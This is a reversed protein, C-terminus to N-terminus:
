VVKPCAGWKKKDRVIIKLNVQLRDKMAHGEM